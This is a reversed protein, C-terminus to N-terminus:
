RKLPKIPRIVSPKRRNQKLVAGWQGNLHCVAAFNIFQIYGSILCIMSSAVASVTQMILSLLFLHLMLTAAAGRQEWAEDARDLIHTFSSFEGTEAYRATASMVLPASLILWILALLFCVLIMSLKARDFEFSGGSFILGTLDLDSVAAVALRAGMGVLLFSPLYYLLTGAFVVAGAMLDDGIGGWEPLEDDHGELVARIIRLQYGMLIFLPLFCPLLLAMVGGILTKTIANPGSFPYKLARGLDIM